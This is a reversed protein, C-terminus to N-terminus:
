QGHGLKRLIDNTFVAPYKRNQLMKILQHQEQEVSVAAEKLRFHRFEESQAAAPFAKLFRSFEVNSDLM